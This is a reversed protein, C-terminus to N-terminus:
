KPTYFLRSWRLGWGEDDISLLTLVAKGILNDYPIYGVENLFRSDQSSDRNDGMAFYHDDPITYLPTNDAFGADGSQEIIPHTHGEPFTETYQPVDIVRGGFSVAYDGAPTRPLVTGNIHLRGKIMQLQDGPLGVLRKVYIQDTDTPLRFVIIDGRKPQEAFLRGNSLFGPSFPLSFRSYGYSFKSVFIYDGILITPIMSGTPVRYPEYALSRFVLALLVAWAIIRLNEGMRKRTSRVPDGTKNASIM